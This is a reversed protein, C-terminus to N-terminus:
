KRHMEGKFTVPTGTVIKGEFKIVRLDADCSGTLEGWDAGNKYTKL